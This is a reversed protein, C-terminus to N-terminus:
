GMPYRTLPRLRVREATIVICQGIAHAELIAWVVQLRALREQVTLEEM